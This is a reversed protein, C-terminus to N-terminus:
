PYRVVAAHYGEASGAGSYGGYMTPSYSRSGSANYSGNPGSGSASGSRTVGGPGYSATGSASATRGTNPNTYSASRSVTGYAHVPSSVALGLLAALVAPVLITRMM